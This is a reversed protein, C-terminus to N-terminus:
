EIVEEDSDEDKRRAGRRMAAKVRRALDKDPKCDSLTYSKRCGAAPCDKKGPRAGKFFAQIAERQFSHGCVESTWPDTLAALSLPCKYDQTVGGIEIDDDDDSDDGDEKPILETLPPMAEDPHSVEYVRQKFRIYKDNKAYKQRTTKTSYTQLADKANKVYADEADAIEEGRAVAQHLRNVSEENAKMEATIDIFDKMMGDLEAIRKESEEGQVYDAMAVAVNVIIDSSTSLMGSMHAWDQALGNLKPLVDRPLPQDKFNAVDIHEDEDEDEDEAEAEDDAPDNRAAEKGKGKGNVNKSAKRSARPAEEDDDEEVDEQTGRMSRDDEIDSSEQARASARRRSSSAVPM